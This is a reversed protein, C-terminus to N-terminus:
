YYSAYLEALQQCLIKFGTRTATSCANTLKKRLEDVQADFSAQELATHKKGHDKYKAQCWCLCDSNGNYFFFNSRKWPAPEPGGGENPREIRYGDPDILSVPNNAVFAYM